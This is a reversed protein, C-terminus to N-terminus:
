KHITQINNATLYEEYTYGTDRQTIEFADDYLSNILNIKNQYDEDSYFGSLNDELMEKIKEKESAIKILDGPNNTEGEFVSKRDREFLMKQEEYKSDKITEMTSDWTAKLYNEKNQWEENLYAYESDSPFVEDVELNNTESKSDKEESETPIEIQTELSKNEIGFVSLKSLPVDLRLEDGPQLVKKSDIGNLRCIRPVEEYIESTTDCYKAAISSLIDGSKVTYIIREKEEKQVEEISPTEEPAAGKKSISCGTTSGIITVILLGAVVKKAQEKVLKQALALTKDHDYIKIIGFKSTDNKKGKIGSNLTSAAINKNFSDTYVQAEGNYEGQNQIQYNIIKKM